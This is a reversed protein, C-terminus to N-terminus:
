SRVALPHFWRSPLKTTRSGISPVGTAPCRFGFTELPSSGDSFAHWVGCRAAMLVREDDIGLRLIALALLVGIAISKWSWRSM